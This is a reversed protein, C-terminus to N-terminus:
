PNDVLLAVVAPRQARYERLGLLMRQASCKKDIACEVRDSPWFSECYLVTKSVTMVSLAFGVLCAVGGWGGGLVRKEGYKWVVWLYGVYGTSEVINLSAQAATFGNHEKLAKEGYVYDVQGYLAYPTFIPAHLSGDPMSHPRLLVYATDWFVAPLSALLWLLTITSPAHTWSGKCNSRPSRTLAKTPSLDPPPFSSPHNRTSVM